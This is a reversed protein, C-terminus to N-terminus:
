LSDRPRLYPLHDSYGLTGRNQSELLVVDGSLVADDYRFLFVLLFAPVLVCQQVRVRTAVDAHLGRQNCPVGAHLHGVVVVGSRSGESGIAHYTTPPSVMTKLTERIGREKETVINRIIWFSPYLYTILFFIPYLM